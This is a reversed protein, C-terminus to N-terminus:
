GPTNLGNPHSLLDDVTIAISRLSVLESMRDAPVKMKFEKELAILLLVAGQSDLGLEETLNSDPNVLLRDVPVGIVGSIASAVKAEVATAM